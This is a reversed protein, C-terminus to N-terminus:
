IDHTAFIGGRTAINMMIHLQGANTRVRFRMSPRASPGDYKRCIEYRVTEGRRMALEAIPPRHCKTQGAVAIHAINLQVRTSLRHRPMAVINRMMFIIIAM